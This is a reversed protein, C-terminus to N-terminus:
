PVRAAPPPRNQAQNVADRIKQPDNARLGEVLERTAQAQELAYAQMEGLATASPVPSGPTAAVLQDFSREYGVTVTSEVRGALDEFSLRKASPTNLIEAWQQRFHQDALTFRQIADRATLEEHFVYSPPPIHHALWGTGVLLAAMALWRGLGPHPSRASWPVALARALLAGALFGGAHASNDIGPVVWIGMAFILTVFVTAAWFLWRFEHPDVQRRERWL